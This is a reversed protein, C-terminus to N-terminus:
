AIQVSLGCRNCELRTGHTPASGLYRWQLISKARDEYCNPCISHPPEGGQMSEKITYVFTKRGPKTEKLEYRQKEAEWNEFKILQEELEHIRLSMLQQEAQADLAASQASMLHDGIETLKSQVEGTIKLAFLAKLVNKTAQIGQIAAVIEGAM